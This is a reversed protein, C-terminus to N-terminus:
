KLIITEKDFLLRIEELPAKNIDVGSYLERLATDYDEETIKDKTSWCEVKDPIVDTGICTTGLTENEYRRTMTGLFDRYSPEILSINKKKAMDLVINKAEESSVDRRFKEKVYTRAETAYPHTHFEGQIKFPCQHKLSELSVTCETGECHRTASLKEKEDICILFGREKGTEITKRIEGLFRNKLESTIKDKIPM